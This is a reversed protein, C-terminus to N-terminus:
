RLLATWGLIVEIRTAPEPQQRDLFYVRSGDRTVDYQTGWHGAGIPPVGLQVPVGTLTGHSAGIMAAAYPTSVGPRVNLLRPHGVLTRASADFRYIQVGDPVATARRRGPRLRIGCILSRVGLRDIPRGIEGGSSGNAWTFAVGDRRPRAFSTCFICVTPFSSRGAIRTTAARNTSGRSRSPSMADLRDHSTGIEDGGMKTIVYEGPRPTLIVIDGPLHQKRLQM